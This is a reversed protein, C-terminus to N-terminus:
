FLQSCTMVTQLKSNEFISKDGTLHTVLERAHEMVFIVRKQPIKQPDGGIANVNCMCYSTPMRAMKKRLALGTTPASGLENAGITGRTM